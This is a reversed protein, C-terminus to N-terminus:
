LRDLRRQLDTVRTRASRAEQAATDNEARAREHEKEAERLEDEARELEARLRTVAGSAEKARRATEKAAKEAADRVEAVHRADAWAEGLQQELEARRTALADDKAPPKRARAAKRSAASSATAPVDGFGSHQLGETLRGAALLEAGAPDSLAANLTEELGRVTSESVRHGAEEGLARAQQALAHVLQHRQRSLQRLEPGSLSATAERLAAGLDLLPGVQEPHRRSLQNALWAVVTPKRLAGIAAATEREGAKRAERARADRAATFEEPGLEYLEDAVLDLDM